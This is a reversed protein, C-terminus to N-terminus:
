ALKINRIDNLNNKVRALELKRILIQEVEKLASTSLENTCETVLKELPNSSKLKELVLKKFIEYESIKMESGNLLRFVRTIQIGTETSIHKLTTNDSLELFHRLIQNQLEM